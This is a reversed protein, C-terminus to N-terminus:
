KNAEELDWLLDSLLKTMYTEKILIEDTEVRCMKEILTICGEIIEDFEADFEMQFTLPLMDYKDQDQRMLQFLFGHYYKKFEIRAQAYISTDNSRRAVLLKDLNEFHEKVIAGPDDM